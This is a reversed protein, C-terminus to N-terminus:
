ESSSSESGDDDDGDSESQQLKRSFNMMKGVKITDANIVDLILQYKLMVTSAEEAVENPVVVMNQANLAKIYEYVNELKSKKIKKPKESSSSRKRKRPEEDNQSKTTTTKKRKASLQDLFVLSSSTWKPSSDEGKEFDKSFIVTHKQGMVPGKVFTYGSEKLSANFVATHNFFINNKKKTKEFSSHVNGAYIKPRFGVKTVGVIYFIWKGLVGDFDSLLKTFQPDIKIPIGNQEKVQKMLFEYRSKVRKLSVGEAPAFDQNEEKVEEEAILKRLIREQKEDLNFNNQKRVRISKKPSRSKKEEKRPSKTKKPPPESKEEESEDDDDEISEEEVPDDEVLEEEADEIPDDEISEEEGESESQNKGKLLLEQEDENESASDSVESEEEKTYKSIGQTPSDPAEKGTM